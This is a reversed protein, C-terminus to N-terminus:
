DSDDPAATRKVFGIESLIAHTDEANLNNLARKVLETRLQTLEDIGLVRRLKRIVTTVAIEGTIEKGEWRALGVVEAFKGYMEHISVGRDPDNPAEKVLWAHSGITRLASEFKGLETEIEPTLWVAWHERIGSLRDAHTLAEQHPGKRFLTTLGRQMEAVYEECFLVHEDFAVNAMHSTAGVTFRNKAEEMEVAHAKQLNLEFAKLDRALSQGVLSKVLWALLGSAIGFMGVSELVSLSNM